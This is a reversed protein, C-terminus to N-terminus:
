PLIRLAVLRLMNSEQAEVKAGATQPQPKM